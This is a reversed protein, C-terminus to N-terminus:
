KSQMKLRKKRNLYYGCLYYSVVGAIFPILLIKLALAVYGVYPIAIVVVGYVDDYDVTWPDGYEEADGKTRYGLEQGVVRHVIKYTGNGLQVKFLIVDGVKPERLWKPVTMVLSGKPITPEMSSTLVVAFRFGLLYLVVIFISFIYLLHAKKM